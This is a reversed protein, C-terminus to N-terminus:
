FSLVDCRALTPFTLLTSIMRMNFKNYSRSCLFFNKLTFYTFLIPTQGVLDLNENIKKKRKKCM